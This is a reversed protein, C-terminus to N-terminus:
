SRGGKRLASLYKVLVKVWTSQAAQYFVVGLYIEPFDRNLEANLEQLTMREPGDGFTEFQTVVIVSAKVNRRQLKRLIQRGAFPRNRGGEEDPQVDFTSMTMDLLVVDFADELATKLGRQYSHREIIEAGKINEQITSAIHRAKNLDDEVLLIKM